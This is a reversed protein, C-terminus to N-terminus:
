HNLVDRVFVVRSRKKFLDINVESAFIIEEVERKVKIYPRKIELIIAIKTECKNVENIWHVNKQEVIDKISFLPLLEFRVFYGLIFTSRHARM